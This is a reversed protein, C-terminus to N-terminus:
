KLDFVTNLQFTTENEPLKGNGLFGLETLLPM